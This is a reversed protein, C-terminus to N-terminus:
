KAFELEVKELVSPFIKESTSILISFAIYLLSSDNSKIQPLLFGLQILILTVFSVCCGLLIRILTELIIKTKGNEVTLYSKNLNYFSAIFVGIVGFLSYGFLKIIQNESLCILLASLLIFVPMSCIITFLSWTRTIDNNKKLIYEEARKCGKRANEYDNCFLPVYAEGLLIFFTKKIKENNIYTSYTNTYALNNLIENLQKEDYNEKPLDSFKWDLENNFNIWIAYNESLRIIEKIPLGEEEKWKKLLPDKDQFDQTNQKAM